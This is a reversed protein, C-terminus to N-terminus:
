GESLAKSAAYLFPLYTQTFIIEQDETAKLCAIFTTSSPFLARASLIIM